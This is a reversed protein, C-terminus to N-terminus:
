TRSGLGLLVGWRLSSMELDHHREGYDSFFIRIETETCLYGFLMHM